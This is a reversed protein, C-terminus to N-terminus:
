MKRERQDSPTTGDRRPIRGTDHEVAALEEDSVKIGTPYSGTDLEAQITLGTRDDHERDPQRDGRPQGAAPRALEPHHPLVDPARDQEVQQHGAPLPLRSRAAGAADALEQLAVKWLRCRSGNSGGGDATILLETPAASLAEGGDGAVLPPDGRAAFRATDHDIGVSVWGQNSTLDYVGYPIAKGLEKDMFDHVRM